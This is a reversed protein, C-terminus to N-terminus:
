QIEWGADATLDAGARRGSEYAITGAVAIMSANDTCCYMPPVTFTINPYQEKLEEIRERLRSNASVGGGVVFHRIDPHDDLCVKIRSFIEDLITNVKHRLNQWHIYM